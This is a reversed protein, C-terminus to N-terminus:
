FVKYGRNGKVFHDSTMKYYENLSFSSDQDKEDLWQIETPTISNFIDM